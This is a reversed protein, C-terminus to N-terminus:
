TYLQQRKAKGDADEYRGVDFVLLRALAELLGNILLMEPSNAVFQKELQDEIWPLLQQVKPEVYTPFVTAVHGIVELMAGKATQTAKSFKLDYFLKDVYGSPDIDEATVRADAYKLVNVVVDLATSRVKNSWDGRAIVQCRQTIQVIHRRTVAVHGGYTKVFAGLLELVKIRAHSIERKRIDESMAGSADLFEVLSPPDQSQFLYITAQQALARSRVMCDATARQLHDLSEDVSEVVHENELYAALEKLRDRVKDTM